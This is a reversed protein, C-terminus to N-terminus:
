KSTVSLFIDRAEHQFESSIITDVSDKRALEPHLQFTCTKFHMKLDTTNHSVTNLM